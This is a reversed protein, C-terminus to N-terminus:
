RGGGVVEVVDFLAHQNRCSPCLRSQGDRDFERTCQTCRALHGTACAPCWRPDSHGAALPYLQACDRCTRQGWPARTGTSGSGTSSTAAM